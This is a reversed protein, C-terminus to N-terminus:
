EQVVHQLLAQPIIPLEKSSQRSCPLVVAPNGAMDAAAVAPCSLVPATGVGACPGACTCPYADHAPLVHLAQLAATLQATRMPKSLCLDAGCDLAHQQVSCCGGPQAPSSLDAATCVLIPLARGHEARLIRAASWGDLVPMQLDLLVVCVQRTGRCSPQMCCCRTPLTPLRCLPNTCTEHLHTCPTFYPKIWAQASIGAIVSLLNSCQTSAHFTDVTVLSPRTNGASRCIELSGSLSM